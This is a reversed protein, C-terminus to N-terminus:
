LCRTSIGHRYFLLRGFWQTKKYHKSVLKLPLFSMRSMFIWHNNWYTVLVLEGPNVQFFPQLIDRSRATVKKSTLVVGGYSLFMGPTQQTFLCTKPLLTTSYSYFQHSHGITVLSNHKTQAAHCLLVVGHMSCIFVLGWNLQGSSQTDCAKLNIEWVCLLKRCQGRYDTVLSWQHCKSIHCICQSGYFPPLVNTIM